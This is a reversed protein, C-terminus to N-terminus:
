PEFRNVQTAEDYRVNGPQGVFEDQEIRALIAADSINAWCRRGDALRVVVIGVAPQGDRDHQVTYAEVTGAGRGEVALEPHSEADIRAQAHKPDAREFPHDPAASSYVGVAHKTIYWGIGSVLGSSGPRARLREVMCAVAHTSYNNGPGGHYPLGGTVTLQRPDDVAIGLMDAAIQVACPFCSYLDFCEIADIALRAQALAQEGALRIAPSSWFNVRESVFWHDTADGCGRVYVWKHQPIGLARATAVDTMLLAAAQDVSIIANMMKPYPFAIMRNNPGVASLEAASRGQRFWAYPNDRAVAAMRACLDGLHARHREISWGRQARLANEFLPYVNTPMQAHHRQEVPNNGWRGDGITQPTGAEAWDLAVGARRALQLGHMAEAGTILALRVEGRAILDATENIRWQPSNGGMSTYIRQHPAIGLRAALFGAPDAYPRSIINIVTLSDIEALRGPIEADEAALRATAAMMDLPEMVEAPDAARNVLQGVGVIVPQRSATV